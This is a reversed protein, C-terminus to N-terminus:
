IFRVEQKLNSILIPEFQNGKTRRLMSLRGSKELYFCKGSDSFRFLYLLLLSIVFFLRVFGMWILKTKATLPLSDTLYHDNELDLLVYSMAQEKPLGLYFDFLDNM